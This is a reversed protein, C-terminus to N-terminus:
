GDRRATPLVLAPKATEGRFPEYVALLVDAEDFVAWPGDGPWAPLVRGDAILGATDADVDVRALTAVATAVPLL